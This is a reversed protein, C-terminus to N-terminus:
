TVKALWVNLPLQNGPSIITNAQRGVNRVDPNTAFMVRSPQHVSPGHHPACSTLAALLVYLLGFSLLWVITRLIAPIIPARNKTRVIKGPMLHSPNTPVLAPLALTFDSDKSRDLM